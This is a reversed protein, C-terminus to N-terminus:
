IRCISIEVPQLIPQPREWVSVQGFSPEPLPRVPLEGRLASLIDDWDRRLSLYLIFASGLIVAVFFVAYATDPM